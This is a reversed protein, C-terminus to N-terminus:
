KNLFTMALVLMLMNNDQSSGGSSSGGLGGILLLPLIAAISDPAVSLKTGQPIVTTTKNESDVVDINRSVTLSKQTLLPLLTLMQTTNKSEDRARGIERQARTSLADVQSGVATIARANKQMDERVANMSKQFEVQNVFQSTAQPTPSYSGGRPTAPAPRGRGRGRGRGRAEPEWAEDGWAEDYAAEDWAAEDLVEQAYGNSM